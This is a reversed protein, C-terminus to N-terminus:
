LDRELGGAQGVDNWIIIDLVCFSYILMNRQASGLNEM